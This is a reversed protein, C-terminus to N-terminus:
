VMFRDEPTLKDDTVLLKFRISKLKVGDQGVNLRFVAFRSLVLSTRVVDVDKGGTGNFVFSATPIGSVFLTCPIQALEGLESSGTLTVEYKGKQAM